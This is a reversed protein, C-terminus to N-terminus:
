SVLSEDTGEVVVGFKPDAAGEGEGERETKSKTNGFTLRRRTADGVLSAM